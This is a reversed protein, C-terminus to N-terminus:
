PVRNATICIYKRHKDSFTSIRTGQFGIAKMMEDVAQAEFLQIHKAFGKKELSVKSTFCLVVKGGKMLVRMIERLGKEVDQWYFISNVSSVKTFHEVPYPLAEVAACKLDLKSSKIEKQYRKKAHAVIASSVDVGALLGDTIIESMRKLLYGGGFGIDLVRDTPQLLLLDLVTDNLAANRRNWIFAALGSFIGRPNGLQDAVLKSGAM